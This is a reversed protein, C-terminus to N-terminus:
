DGERLRSRSGFMRTCAWNPPFNRVMEGWRVAGDQASGILYGERGAVLGRWEEGLARAIRGALAIQENHLGFM